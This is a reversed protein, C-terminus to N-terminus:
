VDETGDVLTILHRPACGKESLYEEASEVFWAKLSKGEKKLVEHLEHKFDPKVEIVIRGSKGISM